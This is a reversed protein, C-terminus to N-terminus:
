HHRKEWFRRMEDKGSLLKRFGGSKRMRFVLWITVITGIAFAVIAVGSIMAIFILYGLTIETYRNHDFLYYRGDHTTLTNLTGGSFAQMGLAFLIIGM